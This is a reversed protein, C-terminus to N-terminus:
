MMPGVAASNVGADNTDSGNLSLEHAMFCCTHYRLAVVYINLIAEPYTPWFQIAKRCTSVIMCGTSNSIGGEFGFTVVNLVIGSSNVL